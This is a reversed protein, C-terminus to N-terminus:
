RLHANGCRKRFTQYLSPQAPLLAFADFGHKAGMVGLFGM